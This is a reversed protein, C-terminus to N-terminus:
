DELIAVAEIEVLADLPIRAAQVTTRAPPNEPFFEAYVANMAQFDDMNALFVTTKVVNQLSTGAAELIAALNRLTQRTQAEIGEAMKRTAPDLGAQGATYVMNGAIVAHSYPGIARPAGPALLTRRDPM